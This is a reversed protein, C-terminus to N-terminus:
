LKSTEQWHWKRHFGTYIEMPTVPVSNEEFLRQTGGTSLIEVGNQTLYKGLEVIGSKDFVSILARKIKTM